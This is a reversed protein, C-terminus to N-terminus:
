GREKKKKEKNKSLSLTTVLHCSPKGGACGVRSEKMIPSTVDIIFEKRVFGIMIGKKGDDERRV